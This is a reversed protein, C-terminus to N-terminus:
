LHYKVLASVASENEDSQIGFKNSWYSYEIGAELKSKTIGMFKGVDARLQPNFHFDSAHDAEASSWDLYGDFMMDVEGLKFPVGYVITVQLDDDVNENDAYYFNTQFFAFGPISWDLGIGYLYNDQSFGTSDSSSEYTTALLVDKIPGAEVKDGFLGSSLRPSLEAYTENFSAAAGKGNHRDLFFFTDGWNHGSVHELTMTTMEMEKNPAGFNYGVNFYDASHLLTISNDSWFMEAQASVSMTTAAVTMLAVSSIKNLKKM